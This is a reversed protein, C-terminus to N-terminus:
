RLRQDRDPRFLKILEKLKKRDMRGGGDKALIAITSFPLKKLNPTRLLLRNFLRQSSALCRDRTDARGFVPLFPYRRRMVTLEKYFKMIAGITIAKEQM